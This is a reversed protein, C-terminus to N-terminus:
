EFPEWIKPISRRARTHSLLRNIRLCRAVWKMGRRQATRSRDSIMEVIEGFGYKRYAYLEGLADLIAAPFTAQVWQAHERVLANQNSSIGTGDVEAVVLDLHRYSCGEMLVCITTHIWDSIIKYDTSYRHEAFLTRRIFCGQHPLAMKLLYVADLVEPPTIIRSGQATVYRINGYLYGTGDFSITTLVESDILCDGSNLFYVYEGVAQEIGKNMGNYIGGDRESVWHTLHTTQAAYARIVDESGDTSGGDIIIHEYSEFSQKRVSELTRVLGDHNNFNVTIISLIPNM